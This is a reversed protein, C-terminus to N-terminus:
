APKKVAITTGNSEGDLDHNASPQYMYGIKSLNNVTLVREDQLEPVAPEGLLVRECRDHM